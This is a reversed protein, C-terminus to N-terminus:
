KQIISICRKCLNTNNIGEFVNEQYHWCRDCKLGKAKSIQIIGYETEETLADKEILQEVIKFNSVILWDSYSDIEPIGHKALWLISGEM